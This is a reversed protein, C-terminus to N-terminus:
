GKHLDSFTRFDDPDPGSFEVFGNRWPLYPRIDTLATIDPPKPDQAASTITGLQQLHELLLTVASATSMPSDRDFVLLDDVYFQLRRPSPETSTLVTTLRPAINHPAYSPASRITIVPAPDDDELELDPLDLDVPQLVPEAFVNFATNLAAPSKPVSKEFSATPPTAAKSLCTYEDMADTQYRLMNDRDPGMHQVRLSTPAPPSPRPSPPASPKSQRALLQQLLLKMEGLTTHLSRVEKRFNEAHQKALALDPPKKIRKEHSADRDEHIESGDARAEPTPTPFKNPM